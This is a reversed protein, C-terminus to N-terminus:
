TQPEPNLSKYVLTAATFVLAFAAPLNDLTFAGLGIEGALFLAGVGIIASLGAVFFVATTGSLSFQKKLFDMFPVGIIGAVFQLGLAIYQESTM